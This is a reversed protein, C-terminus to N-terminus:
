KIPNCYDKLAHKRKLAKKEHNGNDAMGVMGKKESFRIWTCSSLRERTMKEVGRYSPYSWYSVVASRTRALAALEFILCRLANSFSM